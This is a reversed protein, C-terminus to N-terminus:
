AGEARVAGPADKAGHQVEPRADAMGAPGTRGCLRVCGQVGLGAGWHDHQLGYIDALLGGVPMTAEFRRAGIWRWGGAMVKPDHPKVTTVEFTPDLNAAIIKADSGLSPPIEWATGKVARTMTMPQSGFGNKGGSGQTWRGLITGHDAAMTGAFSGNLDNATATFSVANGRFTVTPVSAPYHSQDVWYVMARWGAPAKSIRFVVRTADAAGIFVVQWDGAIATASVADAKPTQALLAFPFGCLVVSFLLVVGVRKGVRVLMEEYPSEKRAYKEQGM